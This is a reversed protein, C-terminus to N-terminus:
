VAFHRLARHLVAHVLQRGASAWGDSIGAPLPACGAGFAFGALGSQRAARRENPFPISSHQLAPLSCQLLLRALLVFNQWVIPPMAAPSLPIAWRFETAIIGLSFCDRPKGKWSM